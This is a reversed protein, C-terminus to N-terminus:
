RRKHCSGSRGCVCNKGKKARDPPLGSFLPHITEASLKKDSM